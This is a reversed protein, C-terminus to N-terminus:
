RLHLWLVILFVAIAILLMRWLWESISRPGNMLLRYAAEVPSNITDTQAPPTAAKRELEAAIAKELTVNVTPTDDEFDDEEGSWTEDITSTAVFGKDSFGFLYTAGDNVNQWSDSLAIKEERVMKYTPNRGIHMLQWQDRQYETLCRLKAQQRSVSPHDIDIDPKNKPTSRGIIWEKGVDFADTDLIRPEPALRDGDFFTLSLRAM